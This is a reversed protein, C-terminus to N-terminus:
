MPIRAEILDLYFKYGCIADAHELVNQAERRRTTFMEPAISVVYVLSKRKNIEFEMPYVNAM